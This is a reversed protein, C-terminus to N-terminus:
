SADLATGIRDHQQRALAAVDEAAVKAGLDSVVVFALVNELRWLVAYTQESGDASRYVRGGPPAVELDEDVRELGAAGNGDAEVRQSSEVLATAAGDDDEFVSVVARVARLEGGRERLFSLEHGGVRGSDEVQDLPVGTERAVIANPRSRSGDVVFGEPLDGLQLTMAKPVLEEAPTGGDAWPQVVAVAIAIAGLLSALGLFVWWRM